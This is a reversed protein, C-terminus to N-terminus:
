VPIVLGWDRHGDEWLGADEFRHPGEGYYDYAGYTEHPHVMVQAMTVVANLVWVEGLRDLHHAGGNAGQDSILVIRTDDMAGDGDLDEVRLGAKVTHGAIEIRDGQAASFDTIIDTGIADVWHDHIGDNEGAVGGWSIWGDTDAHQEAVEDPANIVLEFRFTDAGLGGTLTDGAAFNDPFVRPAGPDQAIEPEGADSRSLLIDNGRGGALADAGFGGALFDNGDGGDLRDNGAGGWLADDGTNGLLTDAGANGALSDNNRGGDISDADLGGQAIDDGAGGIITDAGAEGLLRDDDAGGDILDAGAGGLLVDEDNGGYLTDAGDGGAISDHGDVGSVLDDGAGALMLDGNFGGDLTDALLGGHFQREFNRFRM